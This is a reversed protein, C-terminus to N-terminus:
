KYKQCIDFYYVVWHMRKGTTLKVLYVIKAPEKIYTVLKVIAELQSQSQNAMFSKFAVIKLIEEFEEYCVFKDKNDEQEKSSRPSKLNTRTKEAEVFETIRKIELKSILGPFINLNMLIKNLEEKSIGNNESFFM